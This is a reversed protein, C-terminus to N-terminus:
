GFVEDISEALAGIMKQLQARTTCYPPMLVVVSGVPRTLVGRKAMADCVRIGAKKSLAIPKRTKWDAVLEVGAVL